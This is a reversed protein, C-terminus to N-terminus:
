QAIENVQQIENNMQDTINNIRTDNKGLSINMGRLNINESSNKIKNLQRRDKNSM